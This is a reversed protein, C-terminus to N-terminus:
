INFIQFEPNNFALVDGLYKFDNNVKVAVDNKSRDCKINTM